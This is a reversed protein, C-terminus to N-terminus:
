PCGIRILHTSSSSDHCMDFPLTNSSSMIRMLVCVQLVDAVPIIDKCFKQIAFEKANQVQRQHFCVSSRECLWKVLVHSQDPEFPV